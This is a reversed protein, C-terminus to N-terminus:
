PVAPPSPYDNWGDPGFRLYCCIFYQYGSFGATEICEKWDKKLGPQVYIPGFPTSIDFYGQAQRVSKAFNNWASKGEATLTLSWVAAGDEFKKRQTNQGISEDDREKKSQMVVFKGCRFLLEKGFKGSAKKSFLPAKVKM